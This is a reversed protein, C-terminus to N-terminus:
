RNYVLLFFDNGYEYTNRCNNQVKVEEVYIVKVKFEVSYYYFVRDTITLKM